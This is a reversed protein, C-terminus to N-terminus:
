KEEMMRIADSVTLLKSVDDPDIRRGYREDLMAMFTLVSLSDWEDYDVLRDDPSLTGEELEMCEELLHIKEVDM